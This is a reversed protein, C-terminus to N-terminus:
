AATSVSGCITRKPTVWQTGRDDQCTSRGCSQKELTQRLDRALTHSTLHSIRPLGIVDANLQSIVDKLRQKRPSQSPLKAVDLYKINYTAVTIVKDAAWAPQAFLASLLLSAALLRIMTIDGTRLITGHVVSLEIQCRALHLCDAV